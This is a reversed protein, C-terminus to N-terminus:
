PLGRAARVDRILAHADPDAKELAAGHHVYASHTEAFWEDESDAAYASVIFKGRRARKDRGVRENYAAAIRGRLEIPLPNHPDLHLHHGLEHVMTRERMEAPTEAISSITFASGIEKKIGQAAYARQLSAHSAAFGEANKLSIFPLEAARPGRMRAYAGSYSMEKNSHEEIRAIPHDGLYHHFGGRRIAREIVGQTQEGLKHGINLKALLTGVKPAEAMEPKKGPDGQPTTPAESKGFQELPVTTMKPRKPPRGKRGEARWRAAVEADSKWALYPPLPWSIRHTVVVERDNPRNPPHQYFGSWWQFAEEPRRIQGHQCWSDASTRDDFTAALIKVVDGLQEQAVRNADWAARNQTAMTETRVIREAWFAPAGQLFPSKERLENKVQEWPTQAVMSKQLVEEFHGVTALGYRELVGPRGPHDPDGAIRRLLAGGSGERAAEYLAAEELQLPAAAGKHTREGAELQDVVSQAGHDAAQKGSDVLTTKLGRQVNTTVHRVQALLARLRVATFSGGGPGGLGEAHALRAELERQARALVQRVRDVGAQQAFALTQRRSERLVEDPTV